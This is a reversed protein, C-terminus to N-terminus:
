LPEVSTSAVRIFAPGLLLSINYLARSTSSHPHVCFPFTYPGM